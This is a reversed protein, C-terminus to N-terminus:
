AAASPAPAIPAPATDPTATKASSVVFVCENTTSAYIQGDVPSIQVMEITAFEEIQILPKIEEGQLFITKYAIQGSSTYTIKLLIRVLNQSNNEVQMRLTNGPRIRLKHRYGRVQQDIRQNEYTEQAHSTVKFELCYWFFVHEHMLVVM